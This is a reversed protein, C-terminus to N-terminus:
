KKKTKTTKRRPRFPVQRGARNLDGTVNQLEKYTIRTPKGKHPGGTPVTPFKRLIALLIEDYPYGINRGDKDKHHVIMILREAYDRITPYTSHVARRWETNMENLEM